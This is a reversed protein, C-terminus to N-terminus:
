SVCMLLLFVLLVAVTFSVGFCALIAETLRNFPKSLAISFDRRPVASSSDILDRTPVSEAPREFRADVGTDFGAAFAVGAFGADFGTALADFGAAFATGAFGGALAFVDAL